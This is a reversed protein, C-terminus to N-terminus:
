IKLLDCKKLKLLPQDSHAGLFFEEFDKGSKLPSFYLIIKFDWDYSLNRVKKPKQIQAGGRVHFLSGTSGWSKLVFHALLFFILAYNSGQSMCFVKQKWHKVEWGWCWHRHCKLEILQNGALFLSCISAGPASVSCRAIALSNEVHTEKPIKKNHLTLWLKWLLFSFSKEM